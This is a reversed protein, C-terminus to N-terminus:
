SKVVEDLRDMLAGLQYRTIVTSGCDGEPIIAQWYGEGANVEVNLHQRRFAMLRHVADPEGLLTRAIPPYSM